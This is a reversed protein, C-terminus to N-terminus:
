FKWNHEKALQQAKARDGGAEKLFQAATQADLPKGGGEPLASGQGQDVADLKKKADGVIRRHEKPDDSDLLSDHAENIVAQKAVLKKNVEEVLKHIQTRQDPTISNATKPDLSWKNAAAKLSEWNSRGGVIRSIEAENMRLGSGAGGAMVTLLEPAVLADAQPTGQALTDRLRGMRQIAQDVPAGVKDLSGSNYQYSKDSRETGKQPAQAAAGAFPALTKRKEYANAWASDEASVPKKLAASARINEYRADEDAGSAKGDKLSAGALPAVRVQGSNKEQQVPEGNPGQIGAVVSWEEEKPKPGTLAERQADRLAIESQTNEGALKESRQQRGQNLQTDYDEQAQKLKNGADIGPQTFLQHRVDSGLQPSQYGAAGVSALGLLKRWGHLENSPYDSATPRQPLPPPAVALPHTAPTPASDFVPAEPAEPPHVALVHGPGSDYSSRPPQVALRKAEEDEDVAIPSYDEDDYAM